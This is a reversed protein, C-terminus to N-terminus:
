GSLGGKAFLEVYTCVRARLRLRFGILGLDKCVKRLVVKGGYERKGIYSTM